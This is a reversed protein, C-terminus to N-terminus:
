VLWCAPSDEVNRGGDPSSPTIAMISDLCDDAAIFGGRPMGNEIQNRKLM